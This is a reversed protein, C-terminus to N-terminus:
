NQGMRDIATASRENHEEGRELYLMDAGEHTDGVLVLVLM